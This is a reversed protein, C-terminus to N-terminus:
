QAQDIVRVRCRDHLGARNVAVNQSLRHGIIDVGLEFVEDGSFAAVCFWGRPELPDDLLDRDLGFPSATVVYGACVNQGGDDNLSFAM